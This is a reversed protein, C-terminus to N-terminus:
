FRIVRCIKGLGFFCNMFVVFVQNNTSIEGRVIFRGHKVVLEFADLVLLLLLEFDFADDWHGVFDFVVITVVENKLQFSAQLM